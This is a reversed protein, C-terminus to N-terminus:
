FFFSQQRIAIPPCLNCTASEYQPVNSESGTMTVLPGGTCQHALVQTVESLLAFTLGACWSATGQLVVFIGQLHTSDPNSGPGKGCLYVSRLQKYGQVNVGESVGLKLTAM